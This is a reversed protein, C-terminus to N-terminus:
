STSPNFANPLLLVNAKSKFITFSGSLMKPLDLRIVVDTGGRRFGVVLRADSPGYISCHVHTRRGRKNSTTRRLGGPMLGPSGVGIIAPLLDFRTGHVAM